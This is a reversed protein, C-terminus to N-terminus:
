PRTDISVPLLSSSLSPDVFYSTETSVEKILSMVDDLNVSIDM